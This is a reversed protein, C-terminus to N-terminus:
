KAGENTGHTSPRTNKRSYREAMRDCAPKYRNDRSAALKSQHYVFNSQEMMEQGLLVLTDNVRQAFSNLEAAAFQLNSYLAVDKEFEHIDFTGPLMEPHILASSLCERAYGLSYSGMNQKARRDAPGLTVLFNLHQHLQKMVDSVATQADTPYEASIRNAM